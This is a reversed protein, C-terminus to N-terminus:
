KQPGTAGDVPGHTFGPPNEEGTLQHVVVTSTVRQPYGHGELSAKFIAAESGRGERLQPCLRLLLFDPEQLRLVFAATNGNWTAGTAKTEHGRSSIETPLKFHM